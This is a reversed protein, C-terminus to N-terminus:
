MVELFFDNCFHEVVRFVDPIHDVADKQNLYLLHRPRSKARPKKTGAAVTVTVRQFLSKRTKYVRDVRVLKKKGLRMHSPGNATPIPEPM